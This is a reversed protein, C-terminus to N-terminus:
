VKGKRRCSGSGDGGVERLDDSWWLAGGNVNRRVRCYDLHPESIREVVLKHGGVWCRRGLYAHIQGLTDLFTKVQGGILDYDM